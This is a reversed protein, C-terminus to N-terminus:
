QWTSTSPEYEFCIAQNKYLDPSFPSSNSPKSINLAYFIPLCAASAIASSIEALSNPDPTSPLAHSDQSLGTEFTKDVAKSKPKIINLPPIYAPTFLYMRSSLDHSLEITAM